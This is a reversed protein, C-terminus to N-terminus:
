SNPVPEGRVDRHRGGPRDAVQRAIARSPARRSGRGATARAARATTGGSASFSSRASRQNSRQSSHATKRPRTVGTMRENMETGAPTKRAGNPRVDPERQEARRDPAEHEGAGAPRGPRAPLAEVLGEAVDVVEDRDTTTARDGHSPQRMTRGAAPAGASSGASLPSQGSRAPRPVSPRDHDREDVDLRLVRREDRLELLPECLDELRAAEDEPGLDLGELALRGRVEAYRVREADRVPGVREDERELRHADPAAVLHDARGEREVRGRLRDGADARRRHERVDVRRREVDVRLVDRRAIVSRVFAIM